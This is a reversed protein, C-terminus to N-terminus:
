IISQKSWKIILFKVMHLEFVPMGHESNLFHWILVLDIHLLREYDSLFLPYCKLTINVVQPLRPYAQHSSTHQLINENYKTIPYQKSIHDIRLLLHLLKGSLISYRNPTENISSLSYDLICLCPWFIPAFLLRHQWITAIAYCFKFL